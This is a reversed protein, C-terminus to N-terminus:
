STAPLDKMVYASYYQQPPPAGYSQGPYGYNSM